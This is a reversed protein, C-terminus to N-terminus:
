RSTLNTLEPFFNEVPQEEFQHLGENQPFWPRGRAQRRRLERRGWCPGGM